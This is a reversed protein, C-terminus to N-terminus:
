HNQDNKNEKIHKYMENNLRDWKRYDNSNFCLLKLERKLNIPDLTDKTIIADIGNQKLSRGCRSCYHADFKAGKFTYRYGHLYAGCNPCKNQHRRFWFEAIDKIITFTIMLFLVFIVIISVAGIIELQNM